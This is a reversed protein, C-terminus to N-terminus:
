VIIDSFLLINVDVSKHIIFDSNHYINDYAGFECFDLLM